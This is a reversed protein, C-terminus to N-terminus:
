CPKQGGNEPRQTRTDRQWFERERRIAIGDALAISSLAAIADHHVDRVRAFDPDDQTMEERLADRDIAPPPSPEERKLRGFLDM